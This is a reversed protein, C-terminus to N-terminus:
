VKEYDKIQRLQVHRFVKELISEGINAAGVKNRLRIVAAVTDSSASSKALKEAYEWITKLKVAEDSSPKSGLGFHKLLLLHQIARSNVMDELSTERQANEKPLPEITFRKPEPKKEVIFQTLEQQPPREDPKSLVSSLKSRSAGRPKDKAFSKELTEGITM